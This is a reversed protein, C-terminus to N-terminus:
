AVVARGGRGLHPGAVSLAAEVGLRKDGQIGHFMVVDVNPPEDLSPRRRTGIPATHVDLALNRALTEMAGDGDPCLVRTGPDLENLCWDALARHVDHAGCDVCAVVGSDEVRFSRSNCVACFFERNSGVDLLDTINWKERIAELKRIVGQRSDAALRTHPVYEVAYGRRIFADLLPSDTIFLPKFDLGERQRRAVAEVREELENGRYGFLPVALTEVKRHRLSFCDLGAPAVLARGPRPPPKRLPLPEPQARDVPLRLTSADLAIVTPETVERGQRGPLRALAEIVGQQREILGALHNLEHEM